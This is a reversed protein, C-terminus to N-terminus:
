WRGEEEERRLRALKREVTEPVDYDEGDDESDEGGTNGAGDDSGYYVGGGGGGNNRLRRKRAAARSKRSSAVYSRRGGTGVRDSFDVDSADIQAGAFRSRAESPRLHANDIILNNDNGATRIPRFDDSFTPSATRAGITTPLTSVDDALDPTEYTDQSQDQIFMIGYNLM